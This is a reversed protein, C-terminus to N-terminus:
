SFIWPHHQSVTRPRDVRGVAFDRTATSRLATPPQEPLTATEHSVFLTQDPHEADGESEQEEVAIRRAEQHGEDRLVQAEVVLLDTENGGREGEGPRDRRKEAARERVAGAAALRDQERTRDGERQAREQRPEGAGERRQERRAEEHSEDFSREHGYALREHR